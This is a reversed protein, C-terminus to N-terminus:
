TGAPVKEDRSAKPSAQLTFMHACKADAGISTIGLDETGWEASFFHRHDNMGMDVEKALRECERALMRLTDASAHLVVQDGNESIEVQFVSQTAITM